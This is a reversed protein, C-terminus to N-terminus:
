KPCAGKAPVPRPRDAGHKDTLTNLFAILDDIEAESMNLPRLLAEGDAHLREPNLESYHRLVDRLNGLSGNHMYPATVAVNRL